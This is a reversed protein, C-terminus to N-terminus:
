CRSSLRMLKSAVYAQIAVGISHALVKGRQSSSVFHCSLDIMSADTHPKLGLVHDPKPCRPYYNIIAQTLSKDGLMTTLYEEQLNLLKALNQLVLDAM